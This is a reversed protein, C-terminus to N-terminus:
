ESRIETQQEVADARLWAADFAPIDIAGRRLWESPWTFPWPSSNDKRFTWWVSNIRDNLEGRAAKRTAQTERYDRTLEILQTTTKGVMWPVLPQPGKTGWSQGRFRSLRSLWAEKSLLEDGLMIQNGYRSLVTEHDVTLLYGWQALWSHDMDSQWLHQPVVAICDMFLWIYQGGEAQIAGRAGIRFPAPAAVCAITTRRRDTFQRGVLNGHQDLIPTSSKWHKRSVVMAPDGVFYHGPQIPVSITKGSM